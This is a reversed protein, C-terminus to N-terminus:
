RGNSTSKLEEWTLFIKATLLETSFRARNVRFSRSKVVKQVHVRNEENFVKNCNNNHTVTSHVFLM